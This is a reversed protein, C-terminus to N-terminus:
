RRPATRRPPSPAPPFRRPSERSRRRCSGPVAPRAPYGCWTRGRSTLVTVQRNNRRADRHGYAADRLDSAGAVAVFGKCRRGARPMSRQACPYSPCAQHERLPGPAPDLVDGRLAARLVDDPTVAGLGLAFPQHLRGDTGPVEDWQVLLFQEAAIEMAAIGVVDRPGRM